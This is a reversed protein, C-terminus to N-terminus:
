LPKKVRKSKGKFEFLQGTNIRDALAEGCYESFKTDNLNTTIITGRNSWQMRTNILDMFFSMFGPSMEATGFDDIV